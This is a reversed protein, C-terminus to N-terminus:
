VRFHWYIYLLYVHYKYTCYRTYLISSIGHLVCYFQANGTITHIKQISIWVIRFQSYYLNQHYFRRLGNVVTKFIFLL